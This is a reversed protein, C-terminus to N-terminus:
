PYASTPQRNSDTETSEISSLAYTHLYTHKYADTHIFEISSSYTCSCRVLSAIALQEAKRVHAAEVDCQSTLM